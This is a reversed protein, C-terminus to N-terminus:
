AGGRGWRRELLQRWGGDRLREGKALARRARLKLASNAGWEARARAPGVLIEATERHSAGACNADLAVLADRLAERERTRHVRSGRSRVVAKLAAFEARVDSPDPLGHTQFIVTIPNAVPRSGQMQVSVARNSDRLLVVADLPSTFIVHRAAKLTAIHIHAREATAARKAIAELSPAAAAAIWRL